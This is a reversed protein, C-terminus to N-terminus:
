IKFVLNLIFSLVTEISWKDYPTNYTQIDTSSIVVSAVVTGNSVVVYTLM